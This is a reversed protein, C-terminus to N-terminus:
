LAKATGKGKLYLYFTNLLTKQAKTLNRQFVKKRSIKSTNVETIGQFLTTLLHLNKDTDKLYWSKLTNSWCVGDVTKIINILKQHYKFKILIQKSKRHVKQELFITPTKEM